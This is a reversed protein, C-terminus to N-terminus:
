KFSIKITASKITDFPIEFNETITKKKGEIKETRIEEICVLQDKIETLKGEIKKYYPSRLINKNHM